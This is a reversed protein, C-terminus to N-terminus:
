VDVVVQCIWQQKEHASFSTDKPVKQTRFKKDISAPSKVFIEHYTIAKVNNSFDYNKANDGSLDATIEYDGDKNERIKSIRNIKNLIFNESDILFLFEELFNYLLSEYDKGVVRMKTVLTDRVKDKCMIEILAYASNEFAEEIDRGYARFKIDATHPLFRFKESKM